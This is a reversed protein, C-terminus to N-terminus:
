KNKHISVQEYITITFILIIMVILAAYSFICYYVILQFVHWLNAFIPYNVYYEQQNKSFMFYIVIHGIEILIIIITVYTVKTNNIWEDYHNRNKIITYITQITIITTFITTLLTVLFLYYPGNIFYNMNENNYNNMLLDSLVYISYFLLPIIIMLDILTHIKAILTSVYEAMLVSRSTDKNNYITM